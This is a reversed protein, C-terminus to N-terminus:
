KDLLCNINSNITEREKNPITAQHGMIKMNTINNNAFDKLDQKTLLVKAVLTYGGSGKKVNTDTFVKSAPYEYQYGNDLLFIVGEGNQITSTNMTCTLQLTTDKKSILLATAIPLFRPKFSSGSVNRTAITTLGTVPDYTTEVKCNQAKVASSFLLACFPIFLKKM